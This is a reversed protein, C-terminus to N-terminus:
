INETVGFCQFTVTAVSSRVRVTQAPGAVFSPTVLTAGPEVTVRVIRNADVSGNAYIDVLAPVTNRNSIHLTYTCRLIGSSAPTHIITLTNAAPTTTGLWGNGATSSVIEEMGNLNFALTGGTQKITYLCEGAKLAIVPIVYSTNAEINLVALLNTDAVAGTGTRVYLRAEADTASYNVITLKGIMLSNAPATYLLTLTQTSTSGLVGQAM